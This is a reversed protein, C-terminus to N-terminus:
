VKRIPREPDTAIQDLEDMADWLDGVGWKAVDCREEMPQPGYVEWVVGISEADRLEEDTLRQAALDQKAEQIRPSWDMRMWRFFVELTMDHHIKDEFEMILREFYALLFSDEEQIERCEEELGPDLSECILDAFENDSFYFGQQYAYEAVQGNSILSYISESNKSPAGDEYVKLYMPICCGQAELHHQVLAANQDLIRAQQIKLDKIEAPSLIRYALEKLKQRRTYLGMILIKMAEIHPNDYAFRISSPFLASESRLLLELMKCVRASEEVAEPSSSLVRIAYDMPLEYSNDKANLIEADAYHLVISLIATNRTRIALHVPTQGCYSIESVCSPYRGLLQRVGIQDEKLIAQSLPGFELNGALQPFMEFVQRQQRLYWYGFEHHHHGVSEIYRSLLATTVQDPRTCNLFWRSRALLASIPESKSKSTYTASRPLVFLMQFLSAINDATLNGAESPDQRIRQYRHLAWELVSHGRENVDMASGYHKTFLCVLRRFCSDLLIRMDTHQLHVYHAVSRVLRFVPSVKMSVTAIWTVTQGIGLIGAGTTCSLTVKSASRWYNQLTPISFNLIRKTQRTAAPLKSMPCEPAHHDRSRIEAEVLFPGWLNRSYQTRQTKCSCFGDYTMSGGGQYSTTRISTASAGSGQDHRLSTSYTLDSPINLSQLSMIGTSHNLGSSGRTLILLERVDQQVSSLRDDHLRSTEEMKDLATQNRASIVNADTVTQQMSFIAKNTANGTKLQLVHLANQLASYTRSLRKELKEVNQKKFPYKLKARLDKARAVHSNPVPAPGRLEKIVALLDNVTAVCAAACSDMASKANPDNTPANSVAVHLANITLQVNNAYTRAQKLDEERGDIDDLYQSIEKFLQLGLSVTGFASGAISFAEAM